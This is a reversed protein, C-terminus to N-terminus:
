CLFFSELANEYIVSGAQSNHTVTGGASREWTHREWNPKSTNLAFVVRCSLEAMIRIVACPAFIAMFRQRIRREAARWLLMTAGLTTPALQIIARLAKWGDNNYIESGRVHKRSLFRSRRWDIVLSARPKCAVSVHVRLKNIPERWENEFAIQWRGNSHIHILESRLM